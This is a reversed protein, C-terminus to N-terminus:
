TIRIASQLAVFKIPQKHGPARADARMVVVVSVGCAKWGWGGGPGATAPRWRRRYRAAGARQAFGEAARMRAAAAELDPSGILAEDILRSLQPDNYRLWWGDAPWAAESGGISKASAFAAPATMEPKAGLNSVSACAGTLCTAALTAARLSRAHFFWIM